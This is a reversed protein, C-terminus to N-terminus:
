SRSSSLPPLGWLHRYDNEFTLGGYGRNSYTYGPGFFASVNSPVWFRNPNAEKAVPVPPKHDLLRVVQDMAAYASWDPDSGPDAAILSGPESMLKEVSASAGWTYIKLGPRDLHELAPLAFQVMGDFTIIVVNIDPHAVLASAVDSEVDTAWDEIPVLVTSVVSCSSPCLSDMQRVIAARAAPGMVISNTSVVLAHLAKGGSNILAEDVDDVMGGVTDIASEADLYEYNSTEDYEDDVVKIGAKEAAQLQPAVAGPIIGCLMVIASDHAATADEIGTEWQSPEGSNSFVTVHAGLQKGITAIDDAASKCHGIESNIPIAMISAGKMAAASVPPGPAHWTPVQEAKAVVAKLSALKSASIVVSSTAVKKSSTTKTPTSSCAALLLASVALVVLSRGWRLSSRQHQFATVTPRRSSLEGQGSLDSKREM